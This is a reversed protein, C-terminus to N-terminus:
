AVPPARGRISLGRWPIVPRDSDVEIAPPSAAPEPLTVGAPPPTTALPLRNPLNGACGDEDMVQALGTGDPRQNKRAAAHDPLLSQWGFLAVLAMIWPILAFRVPREDPSSM